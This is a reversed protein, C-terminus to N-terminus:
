YSFLNAALVRITLDKLATDNGTPLAAFKKVSATDKAATNETESERM